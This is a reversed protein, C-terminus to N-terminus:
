SKKINMGKNEKHYDRSAEHKIIATDDPTDLIFISPTRCRFDVIDKQGYKITAYKLGIIDGKFGPKFILDYVPEFCCRVLEGSSYWSGHVWYAM